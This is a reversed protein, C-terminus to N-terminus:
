FTTRDSSRLDQPRTAPRYLDATATRRWPRALRLATHIDPDTSDLDIDALALAPRNDAPCRALWRGGPALLGAPASAGYQAAVSYGIWLCHLGAYAQAITARAPDDVMVSLLLVDVDLNEYAAILDPFHAEICLAVGFTIDDVTFVLPDTGPTYMWTLETHSLRRKDYRHVLRGQDSAIYLSNHPRNPATLPHISGFATWLRLEGALETIAEAEERLVDWAARSWDAPGLTHPGTSSMVRKHPYVLAGEPFQVLRAGAAAAQRMLERIQQGSERLASRDGPDEPVTSQAVAIRVV